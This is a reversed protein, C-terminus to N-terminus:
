FAKLTKFETIKIGDKESPEGDKQKDAGYDKKVKQLSYENSKQYCWDEPYKRPKNEKNYASIMKTVTNIGKDSIGLYKILNEPTGELKTEHWYPVAWAGTYGKMTLLVTIPKKKTEEWDNSQRAEREEKREARRMELQKKEEWSLTPKTRKM